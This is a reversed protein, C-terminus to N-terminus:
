PIVQNHDALRLERCSAPPFQLIEPPDLNVETPRSGLQWRCMLTQTILKLSQVKASPARRSTVL